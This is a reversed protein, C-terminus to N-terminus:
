QNPRTRRWGLSYLIMASVFPMVGLPEPIPFFEATLYGGGTLLTADRFYFRVFIRPTSFLPETVDAEFTDSLYEGNLFYNVPFYNIGNQSVDLFVFSEPNSQNGQFPAVLNASTLVRHSEFKFIIASTENPDISQWYSTNGDLFEDANHIFGVSEQNLELTDAFSYHSGLSFIVILVYRM